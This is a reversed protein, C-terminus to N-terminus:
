ASRRRAKSMSLEIFKRARDLTELEGRKTARGRRRVAAGVRPDVPRARRGQFLARAHGPYLAPKLRALIPTLEATKLRLNLPAAIAGTQFCAYYAVVLEPLNPMHLAVRDGKGIGLRVFSGALRNAEAALREYTWTAEGSFFAPSKPRM